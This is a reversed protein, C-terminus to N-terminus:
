SASGARRPPSLLAGVVADAVDQTGASGGLDPTLIGAAIVGDVAVRVAAAAAAQDLSHELMLAVSLIAGIPNAVGRGAIDPASGHVPEYIAPGRGAAPLSASPLLGISGSLAAAEDSLIDGFLNEALVVDLDRPRQVLRLAFSDVLAHELTVEPYDAALSSVVERWLRSSTLVNAKDVSVLRCRRSAALTFAARAVREVERRTYTMTDFAREDQGSGARGHAGYYIGGALERVVVLDCGAVVEPRLTTREELGPHVRVPRLNVCLDLSRRLRVLASGPRADGSLHDWRPDGAAGFLIATAEWCATFTEESLPAGEAEIASGGILRHETTMAIAYARAAAHLVTEAARTVETGVGDGALVLIRSSGISM